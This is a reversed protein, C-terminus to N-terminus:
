RAPAATRPPFRGGSAIAVDPAYGTRETLSDTRSLSLSRRSMLARLSSPVVPSVPDHRPEQEVEGPM